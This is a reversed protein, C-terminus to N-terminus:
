VFCSDQRRIGSLSVVQATCRRTDPAGRRGLRFKQACRATAQVRRWSPPGHRALAFARRVAADYDAVDFRDFVFGTARGDALNELACDVVTDALGGVRRM